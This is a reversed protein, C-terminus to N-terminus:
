WKCINEFLPFLLFGIVHVINPISDCGTGIFHNPSIKNGLALIFRPSAGHGKDWRFHYFLCPLHIKQGVHFGAFRILQHMDAAIVVAGTLM